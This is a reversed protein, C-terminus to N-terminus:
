SGVVCTRDFRYRVPMMIVLYQTKQFFGNASVDMVALSWPAVPPKAFESKGTKNMFLLVFNTRDQFFHQVGIIALKWTPIGIFLHPLSPILYTSMHVLCVSTNRKKNKAMWDNQILYDGVFHALLWYM